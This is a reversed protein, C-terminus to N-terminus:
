ARSAHPDAPLNLRKIMTQRAVKAVISRPVLRILSILINNAAGPIAIRDGRMLAEFGTQAVKAAPMTHAQYIRADTMRAAKAFQTETPGPCLATVSVGTGQLEEALAESFSLVYAKTAAYVSHLPIPAFSATSGVNLIRGCRRAKMGPLLLKTLGTLAMINVQVMREETHLDTDVFEGHAGFGANNVLVDIEIRRQELESFIARAAGPESLDCAIVEAKVRFVHRTAAAIGELVPKQRSVLVVNYGQRAFLPVFEFGIGTSAGTILVTPRDLPSIM